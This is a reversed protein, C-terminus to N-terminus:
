VGGVVSYQGVVQSEATSDTRALAVVISGYGGRWESHVRQHEVEAVRAQGVFGTATPEVALAVGNVTVAVQAADTVLEIRLLIMGDAVDGTTVDGVTVDGATVNLALTPTASTPGASAPGAPTATPERLVWQPGALEPTRPPEIRRNRQHDFAWAYSLLNTDDYGRGAFTLGVPMRIDAMVGMPTTVSPIGLHRMVLNGNAVWTGNRWGLAASVPNVDMDAPGVDAVAPFVVADLGLEDM